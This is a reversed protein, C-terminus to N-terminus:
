IEEFSIWKNLGGLFVSKESLSRDRDEKPITAVEECYPELYCQRMLTQLALIFVHKKREDRREKWGETNSKGVTHM